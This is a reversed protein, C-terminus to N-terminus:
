GRGKGTEREALKAKRTKPKLSRVWDGIRRQPRTTRLLDDIASNAGDLREALVEGAVVAVDGSTLEPFRQTVNRFLDDPMPGATHLRGGRLLLRQVIQEFTWDHDAFLKWRKSRRATFGALVIRSSLDLEALFVALAFGSTAVQGSPYFGAMTPALDLHGIDTAGGFEEVSSFREHTGARLNVIGRFAPSRVLRLVDDVERRYVINAGAPSSRAVLVCEGDFPEALVKYVKNFFVFLTREGFARRLEDIRVADSNAVLVITEYRAFFARWANSAEGAAGQPLAGGM